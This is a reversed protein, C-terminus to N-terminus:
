GEPDILFQALGTESEVGHYTPLYFSYLGEGESYLYLNGDGRIIDKGDPLKEVMAELSSFNFNIDWGFDSDAFVDYAALEFDIGTNSIEGFNRTSENVGTYYSAPVDLLLDETYKSYYEAAVSVRKLLTLDFGVNLNNSKEWGLDPNEVQDLYIAPMGGYESGFYYLGLHGYSNGPLNGNTGYSLRIKGDTLFESDVFSEESFRWSGSVSYFVGLRNDAGLQSSEDSRLSGGFYYRNNYNYNVNGFSSQMYREYIASTATRPQANGLEILKDTSYDSASMFEFDNTFKQTEFGGLAEINHVNEFSKNFTLVNSSTMSIVENNQREGLGNLSAGDVSNPGWYNFHRVLTYDLSNTSKFALEPLIQIRASANNLARYTKNEIYAEDKSLARVANGVSSVFSGSNNYTGDENYVKETPNSMFLLSLPSSTSIGQEQDTQDGRGIQDTYALQSKFGLDLWDTSKNELNLTGTYREFEFNRVVGEVDRYGLSAYFNTKENGGSTSFQYETDSGGDYVEDRWNAGEETQSIPSYGPDLLLDDAWVEAEEQVTADGYNAGGPLIADELYLYYGELSKRHYESFEPGSMPQYSETALESWGHSVKLNFKTDGSKGKKTTIIVVGNAARSGYLSAAAADKLVTMSEIDEPNLTSLINSSAREGYDGTNIPIGDVVYLPKTNGTISGIGRIQMDGESGPDGTNSTVRVGSVKGALAKDVTEAKSSALGETNVNSASGTFSTRTSTGYAVVIVEDMAVAESVMAVDITSQGEYPVEQTQMGVFSFVITEADDPVNISYTGDPQTITGVTTGEVFVSVGPIPEGDDSGTVTGTITQAQALLNGLGFVMLFSLALLVKKM